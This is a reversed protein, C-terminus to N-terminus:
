TPSRSNPTSSRWRRQAPAVPVAAPGGAVPDAFRLGAIMQTLLDDLAAPALTKGSLRIAVLWGGVPMVALATTKFDSKAPVFTERLSDAVSGGARAFAQPAAVPTVGGYIDHDSLTTVARDFWVPVSDLAPRFLYLTAETDRSPDDFQAVIDLESDGLDQLATRHLGAIDSMLILGTQAHQWGQADGVPLKRTALAPTAGLLGLAIITVMGLRM